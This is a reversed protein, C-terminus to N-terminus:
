LANLYHMNRQIHQVTGSMSALSPVSIGPLDVSELGVALVPSASPAATAMMTALALSLIRQPIGDQHIGVPPAPARATSMVAAPPSPAARCSLKAARM